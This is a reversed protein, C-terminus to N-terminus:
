LRYKLEHTLCAYKLWRLFFDYLLRAIGKRITCNPRKGRKDMMIPSRYKLPITHKRKAGVDEKKGSNIAKWFITHLSDLSDCEDSAGDSASLSIVKEKSITLDLLSISSSSQPTSGNEVILIPVEDSAGLNVPTTYDADNGDMAKKATPTMFNADDVPEEKMVTGASSNDQVDKDSGLWPAKESSSDDRVGKDSGSWSAKESSKVVDCEM